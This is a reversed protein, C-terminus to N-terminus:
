HTASMVREFARRSFRYLRGVRIAPVPLANAKAREYCATLGIGLEWCMEELTMTAPLEVAAERNEGQAINETSM